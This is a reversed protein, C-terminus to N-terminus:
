DQGDDIGWLRIINDGGGSALLTNKPHFALSLVPKSHGVLTGIKNGDSTDWLQILGDISGTAAIRGSADFVAARVDGQHRMVNLLNPTTPQNIDWLCASGDRSASLLIPESPHFRLKRVWDSHHNIIAVTEHTLMDWLRITQDHGGSVLLQGDPSQAIANVEDTHGRLIITEGRHLLRVMGDISCSILTGIPSFIVKEVADGHQFVDIPQMRPSFARLDWVKVTTDASATALTAGNPAFAVGKVPGDHQKIFVSPAEISGRWIAVGGASSVAIL